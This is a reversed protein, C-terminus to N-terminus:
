PQPRTLLFWFPDEPSSAQTSTSDLLLGLSILLPRQCLPHSGLHHPLPVDIYGRRASSTAGLASSADASPLHSSALFTGELREITLGSSQELLGKNKELVSILEVLRQQLAEPFAHLHGLWCWHSSLITNLCAQVQDDKNTNSQDHHTVSASLHDPPADMPHTGLCINLVSQSWESRQPSRLDLKGLCDFYSDPTGIDFWVDSDDLAIHLIKEQQKLAHRYFLDISSRKEITCRELVQGALIQHNSFIRAHWGQAAASESSADAGFGQVYKLTPDVWTVDKRATKLPLSAMLSTEDPSRQAWSALMPKLPIDAVIDGSVVLTDWINSLGLAASHAKVIRAIGGGTELIEPENWFCIRELPWGRSQAAARMQRELEDALYHTNCHIREFGADLLQEVNRLAAPLAGVPVAPKPIVSTLPRLRTGFGACLVLGNMKQTLV